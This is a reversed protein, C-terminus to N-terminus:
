PRHYTNDEVTSAPLPPFGRLVRNRWAVRFAVPSFRGSLANYNYLVICHRVELSHKVFEGKGETKARKDDDSM